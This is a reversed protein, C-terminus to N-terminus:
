NNLGHHIEPSKITLPAFTYGNSLGYVLIAEVADVSYSKIDHMLVVNAGDETISLTVNEIIKNTDTTNGADGSLITWDFYKYGLEDVKKTIESMIGRKYNKSITNSTGGPFRIIKSSTGTYKIVKEEIMSLDNLYADLNSYIAKYNHSYSHLGITHGENHARTILDNYKNDYGTVFFTAKADYKKLIDLLRKTHEGPGDDFTLYITKSSKVDAKYNNKPFVKVTRKQTTINGFEDKVSYILEYTGTKKNNVSGEVNVHETINGDCNDIAVYGPEEYKSGVMLYIEQNGNLILSPAIDDKITVGYKRITKNGSSDSVKYIIENNQIKYKIKNTIDGDYNDKAFYTVDNTKGSPCVNNFHGEVNLEPAKTDVVEVKKNLYYEKNNKVVKYELNYVGLKKTNVSGELKYSIARCKIKNGYCISPKDEKYNDFVEVKNYEKVGNFYVKNCFFNIYLLTGLLLCSLSFIILLTKNKM